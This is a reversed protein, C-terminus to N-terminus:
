NNHIAVDAYRRMINTNEAIVSSNFASVATNQEINALLRNSEMIANYTMRQYSSIEDLKDIITKLEYIIINQRLESEFLNYAGNPGGLETVRGSAFYEYIQSIAVLNRYKPFIIDYGYLKELADRCSSISSDLYKETQEYEPLKQIEYKRREAMKLLETNYRKDERSDHEESEAFALKSVIFGLIAGIIAGIRAGAYGNTIIGGLFFGVVGGIAIGVLRSFLRFAFAGFGKNEYSPECILSKRGAERIMKSIQQKARFGSYQEMELTYLDKLYATMDSPSQIDIKDGSPPLKSYDVEIPATHITVVIDDSIKEIQQKVEDAISPSDTNFRYSLDDSDYFSNLAEDNLYNRLVQIVNEIESDESYGRIDVSYITQRYIAEISAAYGLKEVDEKIATGLEKSMGEGSIKIEARPCTYLVNTIEEISHKEFRKCMVDILREDVRNLDYGWITLVYEENM